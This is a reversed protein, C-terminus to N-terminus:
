YIMNPIVSRRLYRQTTFEKMRVWSTVGERRGRCLRVNEGICDRTVSYTKSVAIEFVNM